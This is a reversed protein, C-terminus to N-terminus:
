SLFNMGVRGEEMALASTLTSFATLHEPVQSVFSTPLYIVLVM